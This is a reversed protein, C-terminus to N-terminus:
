EQKTLLTRQGTEVDIIWLGVEGSIVPYVLRRGDPSLDIGEAAGSALQRSTDTSRDFVWISQWRSEEDEDNHAIYQHSTAMRAPYRRRFEKGLFTADGMSDPDFVIMRYPFQHLDYGILSDSSDTFCHTGLVLTEATSWRRLSDGDLTVSFLGGNVGNNETFFILNKAKSFSPSTQFQGSTLQIVTQLDSSMKFVGLGSGFLLWDGDPTWSFGFPPPFDLTRERRVEGTTADLVTIYFSANGSDDYRTVQSVIESGDPSWAPTYYIASPLDPEPDQSKSDCAVFLFLLTLWAGSRIHRQNRGIAAIM